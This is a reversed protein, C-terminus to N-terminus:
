LQVARGTHRSGNDSNDHRTNARHTRDGDRFGIGSFPLTSFSFNLTGKHTGALVPAYTVTVPLSKGAALTTPFKPGSFTFTAPTILPAQVQVSAKGTNTLTVTQSAQTGM